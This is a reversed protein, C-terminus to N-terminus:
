SIDDNKAYVRKMTKRYCIGTSVAFIFCSMIITNSIYPSWGFVFSVAVLVISWFLFSALIGLRM